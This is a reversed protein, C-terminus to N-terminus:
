SSEPTRSRIEERIRELIEAVEPHRVPAQFTGRAREPYRPVTEEAPHGDNQHYRSLFIVIEEAEMFRCEEHHAILTSLLSKLLDKNYNLEMKFGPHTLAVMLRSDKVTVFAIARRFRPPLM